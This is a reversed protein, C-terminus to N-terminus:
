PADEIEGAKLRRIVKFEAGTKWTEAVTNGELSLKAADRGDDTWDEWGEWAKGPRKIMLRYEYERDPDVAKIKAAKQLLKILAPASETWLNISLYKSYAARADFQDIQIVDGSDSKYVTLVDEGRKEHYTGVKVRDM